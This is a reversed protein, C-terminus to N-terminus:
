VQVPAAGAESSRAFVLSPAWPGTPTRTASARAYDNSSLARSVNASKSDNSRNTRLLLRPRRRRAPSPVARDGRRARRREPDVLGASVRSRPARRVGQDGP